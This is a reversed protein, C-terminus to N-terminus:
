NIVILIISVLIMICAIKLKKPGSKKYGYSEPVIDSYSCEHFGALGFGFFGIFMLVASTIIIINGM